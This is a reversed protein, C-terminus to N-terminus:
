IRSNPGNQSIATGPTTIPERDALETHHSTSHTPWRLRSSDYHSILPGDESLIEQLYSRLSQMFPQDPESAPVLPRQLPHPEQVDSDSSATTSSSLNADFDQRLNRSGSSRKPPRRTPLSPRPRLKSRQFSSRRSGRPIHPREETETSAIQRLKDACDGHWKAVGVDPVLPFVEAPLDKPFLVKTDPDKIPFNRLATQMFPVHEEPELLIQIAQWRVFGPKTLAPISPPKFRDHSPLLIHKCGLSAWIWSISPYPVDVFLSDYNGGVSKYFSALKFPSLSKDSTNVIHNIIYDGIGELIRELMRTPRKDKEFMYSYFAEPNQTETISTEEVGAAVKLEEAAAPINRIWETFSNTSLDCVRLNEHFRFALSLTPLKAPYSNPRISIATSTKSSGATNTLSCMPPRYQQAQATQYVSEDNSFANPRPGKDDRLIKKLDKTELPNAMKSLQLSRPRPTENTLVLRIPAPHREKGEEPMRAQIRRYINNYLQETTFSAATSLNELEITLEKTFSYQGV